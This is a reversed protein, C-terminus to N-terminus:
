WISNVATDLSHSVTKDTKYKCPVLKQEQCYSSNSFLISLFIDVKIMRFVLHGDRFNVPLHGQVGYVARQTKNSVLKLTEVLGSFSLGDLFVVLM